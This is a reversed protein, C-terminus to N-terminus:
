FGLGCFLPGVSVSESGRLSLGRSHLLDLWPGACKRERERERYRAKEGEREREGGGQWVRRREGEKDGGGREDIQKV